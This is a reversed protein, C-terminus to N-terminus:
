GTGCTGSLLPLIIISISLSLPNQINQDLCAQVRAQSETPMSGTMSVWAISLPLEIKPWSTVWANSLHGSSGVGDTRQSGSWLIMM